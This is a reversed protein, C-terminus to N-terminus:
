FGHTDISGSFTTRRMIMQEYGCKECKLFKDRINERESEIIREEEFMFGDCDKQDCLNAVSGM